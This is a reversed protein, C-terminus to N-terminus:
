GLFCVAATAFSAIAGVTRTRSDVWETFQLDGCASRVLRNPPLADVGAACLDCNAMGDLTLRGLKILCEKRVWMRMALMQRPSPVDPQTADSGLADLARRENRSFVQEALPPEFAVADWGEVDIACPTMGVVAGVAHACHTLSVHVSPHGHIFPRGHAGGCEDCRQGLVLSREGLGTAAAAVRRVLVHAALYSERASASRLAQLRDIEYRALSRTLLARDGHLVDSPAGVLALVGLPGSAPGSDDM